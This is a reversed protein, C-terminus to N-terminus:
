ETQIWHAYLSLWLAKEAPDGPAYPASLAGVNELVAARIAAAWDVAIRDYGEQTFHVGDPGQYLEPAASVVAYMDTGAYVAPDESIIEQVAIRYAELLGLDLAKGLNGSTNAWPATHLIVIKAGAQEVTAIVTQLGAKYDAPQVAFATNADNPGMMICVVGADNEQITAVANDLVGEDNAAWQVSTKAGAALNVARWGDGLFQVTRDVAPTEATPMVSGDPAFGLEGMTLSDGIFVVTEEENKKADWGTFAFGERAPITEATYLPAFNGGDTLTTKLSDSGDPFAGETTKLTVDFDNNEEAEPEEAPPVPTESEAPEEAPPEQNTSDATQPDEAPPEATPNAPKTM